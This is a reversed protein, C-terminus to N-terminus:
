VTVPDTLKRRTLKVLAYFCSLFFHSFVSIELIKHSEWNKKSLADLAGELPLLNLQHTPAMAIYHNIQISFLIDAASVSQFNLQHTPAMAIYHNIQISFLIDAASVSQFNPYFSIFLSYVCLFPHPFHPTQYRSCSFLLFIFSYVLACTPYWQCISHM